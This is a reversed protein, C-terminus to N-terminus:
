NRFDGGDRGHERCAAIESVEGPIPLTRGVVLARDVDHMVGGDFGTHSQASWEGPAVAGIEGAELGATFRGCDRATNSSFKPRERVALSLRLDTRERSRLPLPFQKRHWINPHGLM